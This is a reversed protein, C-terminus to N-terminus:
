VLVLNPRGARPVGMRAFRLLLPLLRELDGDEPDGRAGCDAGDTDRRPRLRPRAPLEHLAAAAPGLSGALHPRGARLDPVALRPAQDAARARNRYGLTSTSCATPWRTLTTSASSM